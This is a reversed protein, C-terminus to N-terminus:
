IIGVAQKALKDAEENGPIGTHGKVKVFSIEIETQKKQMFDYYFKTGTKNRKWEGIAWSEIGQYDYFITIKSLGLLIAKEVAAMAGLIEGSVNRMAKMEKDSGCGSLLYKEGNAVIFGGYGYFGTKSNFSGDVFAYNDPLNNVSKEKFQIDTDGYAFQFAEESSAFSKFIARSYGKVNEECEKWTAYVGPTKGKKVAYFKGM